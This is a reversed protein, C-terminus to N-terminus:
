LLCLYFAVQYMASVPDQGHAHTDIFGPSIVLGTCDFVEKGELTEGDKTVRAIKGGLIGVSGVSDRKTEPDIIRGCNLAVDYIM